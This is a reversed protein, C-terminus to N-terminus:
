DRPRGTEGYLEERSLYPGGGLHFGKEMQELLRLKAEQRRADDEIAPEFLVIVEAGEPVVVGPELEIKGNRAVGKYRYGEASM